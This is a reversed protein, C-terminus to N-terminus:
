CIFIAWSTRLCNKKKKITNGICLCEFDENYIYASFSSDNKKITPIADSFLALSSLVSVPAIAPPTTAATITTTITPSAPKKM